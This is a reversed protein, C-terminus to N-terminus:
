YIRRLFRLCSRVEPRPQAIDAVLRVGRLDSHVSATNGSDESM